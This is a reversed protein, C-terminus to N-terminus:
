GGLVFPPTLGGSTYDAVTRSLPDAGCQFALNRLVTGGSTHSGTDGLFACPEMADHISFHSNGVGSNFGGTSTQSTAEEGILNGTTM